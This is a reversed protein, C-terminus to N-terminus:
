RVSSDRITKATTRTAGSNGARKAFVRMARRKKKETAKMARWSRVQPEWRNAWDRLHDAWRWLFDFVIANLHPQAQHPASGELFESAVVLGIRQIDEALARAGDFGSLLDQPRATRAFFVRVLAELELVPGRCPTALWARLAARGKPTISYVTRARAGTRGRTAKAYGARVLRKPEEYIGSGARPFFFRFNRCMNREIEYPTWSGLSLFGLVAYGTPSLPHMM